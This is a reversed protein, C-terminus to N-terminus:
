QDGGPKRRRPLPIVGTRLMRGILLALPISGVVWCGLVILLTSM